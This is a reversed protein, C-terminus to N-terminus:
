SSRPRSPAETTSGCSAGAAADPVARSGQYVLASQQDGTPVWESGVVSYPATAMPVILTSPTAAAGSVCRLQFVVSPNVVTATFPLKNGPLTFSYGAPLTVGPSLKLDGAMAQPGIAVSGDTCNAASTGSWSGSSGDVGYHFRINVKGSPPCAVGVVYSVTASSTNGAQDTATWAVSKAGVTSTNPAGCSQSAVGSLADTAGSTATATKNLLVPNPSVSASLIPKTRDIKVTVVNSADSTNGAVDTVTVASSAVAAGEASLIQDAPCAGAPIGSGGAPDTCTFHVIVNGNYWGAANPLSTAAASVTPLTKDVKVDYSATGANGALDKCTANLTISGEGGSISSTTCHAVDIGSGGVNDTWKWTVTVDSNNWGATNAAPSQSPSASPPAIDVVSMPPGWLLMTIESLGGSGATVFDRIYSGSPGNFM